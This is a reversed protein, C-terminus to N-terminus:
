RRLSFVELPEHRAPGRGLRSRCVVVSECRWSLDAKEGLLHACSEAPRVRSLTVHPRYPREEPALGASQAAREAIENLRALQAAGAGVGAWVVTSRRANPFAGYGSLGVRFVPEDEVAALGAVFRDVGVEDLAGCYRLTIHWNRPPAAKGPVRLGEVRDALALRVEDPLAIAAFVGGATAVAGVV